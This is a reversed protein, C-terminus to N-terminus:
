MCECRVVSMRNHLHVRPDRGHARCVQGGGRRAVHDHRKKLQASTNDYASSTGGYDFIHVPLTYSLGDVLLATSVAPVAALLPAAFPLPSAACAPM